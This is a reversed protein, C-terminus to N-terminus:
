ITEEQHKTKVESQESTSSRAVRMDPTHTDSWIKAFLFVDEEEQGAAPYSAKNDNLSVSWVGADWRLRPPGGLLLELVWSTAYCVAVGNNAVESIMKLGTKM